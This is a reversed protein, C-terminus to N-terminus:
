NGTGDMEIVSVPPLIRFLIIEEIGPPVRESIVKWACLVGCSKIEEGESRVALFAGFVVDPAVVEIRMRKSTVRRERYPEGKGM